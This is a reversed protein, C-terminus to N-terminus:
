TKGCFMLNTAITDYVCRTFLVVHFYSARDVAMVSSLIFLAVTPLPVVYATWKSLHGAILSKEEFFFNSLVMEYLYVFWLTDYIQATAKLHDYNMTPITKQKTSM